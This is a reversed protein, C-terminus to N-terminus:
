TATSALRRVHGDRLAYFVCSLLERAAAVKALHKAR